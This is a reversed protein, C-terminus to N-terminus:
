DTFKDSQLYGLQLSGEGFGLKFSQVREFVGNRSQYGIHTIRYKQGLRIMMAANKGDKASAWGTQPAGDIANQASQYEFVSNAKVDAKLAVNEPLRNPKATTGRVATVGYNTKLNRLLTDEDASRLAIDMLNPETTFISAPLGEKNYLMTGDLDSHWAYRAEDSRTKSDDGCVVFMKQGTNLAKMADLKVQWNGIADTTASRKQGNFEVTVTAGADAWGWVPLPEDRQLVMGDSFISAVSFESALAHIPLVTLLALSLQTISHSRM